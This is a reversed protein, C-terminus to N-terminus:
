KCSDDNTFDNEIQDIMKWFDEKSMDLPRHISKITTTSLLYSLAKFQEPYGGLGELHGKAFVNNMLTALKANNELTNITVHANQHSSLVYIHSVPISCTIFETQPLMFYKDIDARVVNGKQLGTGTGILNIAHSWLRINPFAPQLYYQNNEDAKILCLDDSSFNYGKKIFAGLTTSKGAGSNGIFIIAKGNYEIASGHLVTWKRQQIAGAIARSRIHNKIYDWDANEEPEVIINEGNEVYIKGANKLKYLLKNKTAQYRVKTIVNEGKLNEPSKGIRIYIDPIKSDNNELFEPFEIESNIKLSYVKYSYM